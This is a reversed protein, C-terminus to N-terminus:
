LRTTRTLSAQSPLPSTMSEGTSIQRFPFQPPRKPRPVKAPHNMSYLPPPHIGLLPQFRITPNANAMM